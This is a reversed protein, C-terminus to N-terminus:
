SLLESQVLAAYIASTAKARYGFIRVQASAAAVNNAGQINLFMDDTALVALYDMNPSNQDPASDNFAVAATLGAAAMIRKEASAVVNTDGLTGVTTRATTSLTTSVTTNAGAVLDPANPDIDVQLIVFCENDLPSLPFQITTSTLVNPASATVSASVAIIESTRKLASAM